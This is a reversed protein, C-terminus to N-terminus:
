KVLPSIEMWVKHFHGPPLGQEPLRNVPHSVPELCFFGEGEPSYLALYPLTDSASLKVSYTPWDIRAQGAWGGFYNDLGIPLAKGQNLSQTHPHGRYATWELTDPRISHFCLTDAFLKAKEPAPFYPHLGLGLPMETPSLNQVSLEIRLGRHSISILQEAQYAWPWEGVEHRQALLISKNRKEKVSWPTRWGFGHLAHQGKDNKKLQVSQNGVSFRGDRIRNAFPLLPFCASQEPDKGGDDSPRLIHLPGTELKLVYSLLVGGYEPAIEAYQNEHLIIHSM